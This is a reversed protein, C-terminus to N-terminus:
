QGLLANPFTRALEFTIEDSFRNGTIDLTTMTSLRRRREILRTAHGDELHANRFSLEAVLAGAPIGFLHDLDRGLENTSPPERFWVQRVFGRGWLVSYGIEGYFRCLKSGLVALLRESEVWLTGAHLELLDRSACQIAILEGWPDDRSQLWDALVLFPEIPGTLSLQDLFTQLEARDYAM